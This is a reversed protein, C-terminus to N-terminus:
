TAELNRWDVQREVWRAGRMYRVTATHGIAIVIVRLPAPRRLKARSRRRWIVVDGAKVDAANM